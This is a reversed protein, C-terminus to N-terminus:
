RRSPKNIRITVQYGFPYISSLSYSYSFYLIILSTDNDIEDVLTIWHQITETMEKAYIDIHEDVEPNIFLNIKM